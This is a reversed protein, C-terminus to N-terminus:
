KDSGVSFPALKLTEMDEFTVEHVLKQPDALDAFRIRWLVSTPAQKVGNTAVIRTPLTIKIDVSLDGWYPKFKELLKERLKRLPDAAEKPTGGLHAHRITLTWHGQKTKALTAAADEIANSRLLTALADFGLSLRTTHKKEKSTSAAERVDIGEIAALAKKRAKMDLDPFADDNRAGGGPDFERAQNSWEVLYAEAKKMDLTSVQTWTGSGDAKVVLESTQELCGALLTFALLVATAPLRM